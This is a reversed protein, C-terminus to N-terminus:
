TRASKPSLSLLLVPTETKWHLEDLRFFHSLEFISFRLPSFFFFPLLSQERWTVTKSIRCWNFHCNETAAPTPHPSFFPSFIGAYSGSQRLSSNASPPAPERVRGVVPPPPLLPPPSGEGCVWVVFQAFLPFPTAFVSSIAVRCLFPLPSPFEAEFAPPFFIL